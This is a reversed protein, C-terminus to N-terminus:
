YLLQDPYIVGTDDLKYYINLKVRMRLCLHYDTNYTKPTKKDAAIM